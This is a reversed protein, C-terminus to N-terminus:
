PEVGSEPSPDHAADPGHVLVQETIEPLSGAIDKAVAEIDEVMGPGDMEDIFALRDDLSLETGSQSDIWKAFIVQRAMRHARRELDPVQDIVLEVNPPEVPAQFSHTVGVGGPRGHPDNSLIRIYTRRRQAWDEESVGEPRETGDWYSYDEAGPLSLLEDFWAMHETFSMMIIVHGEGRLVVDFTTDVLPDRQQEQVIRRRREEFTELAAALYNKDRPVDFIVDRDLADVAIHAVARAVHEKAKIRMLPRMGDLQNIVDGITGPMRIGYISQSM